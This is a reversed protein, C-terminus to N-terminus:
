YSNDEFMISVGDDDFLDALMEFMEGRPSQEIEVKVNKEDITKLVEEKDIVEKKTDSASDVFFHDIWKEREIHEGLGWLAFTSGKYCIYIFLFSGYNNQGDGCSHVTVDDRRIIEKARKISVRDFSDEDKTFLEEPLYM